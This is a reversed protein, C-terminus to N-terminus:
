QRGLVGQIGPQAAYVGLLAPMDSQLAPGVNATAGLLNRVGPLWPVSAAALGMPIRLDYAGSGMAGLGLLARGVSGSDNYKSSLVNVGADSLDQMLANGTAFGGKGVSQNQARVANSLQNPTFVGEKAGNGSGARRLIAWNAWGEDIAKLRAAEDPNHRILMNRVAGQVKELAEGLNRVDASPDSSFKRANRSLESEVEKVIDGSTGRTQFKGIQDRVIRTFQEEQQKPLIASQAARRIDAIFPQDIVATTRPLVEDYAASLRNRVEDLGARGIPLGDASSGIPKLARNYAARNFQDLAANKANAIADGTIPISTAKDEYVQTRGGIMQGVTPTVGEKRLLQVQPRPTLANGVMNGAIGPVISGAVGALLQGGPGVGNEAAIGASAAGSGAAAVQGGINQAMPAMVGGAQGSIGAMSGAGAMGSAIGQAVRETATEPAPLGARTLLRQQAESPLGVDSGAMRALRFPVDAVMAPLGTIGTAAARATLGLQRKLGDFPSSEPAASQDGGGAEAYKAYPNDPQQTVYKAYPNEAM